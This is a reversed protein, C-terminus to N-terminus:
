KNVVICGAMLDHLGQKKETIGAMLFGIGFTLLSLIKGFHRGTATAFNVPDGNTTTVIIGLAMKGYTAQSSSSEMGAYYLWGVVLSIGYWWIAAFGPFLSGGLAAFFGICFGLAFCIFNIIIGDLICAFLRKWFGAYTRYLNVQPRAQFQSSYPQPSQPYIHPPCNPVSPQVYWLENLESVQLAKVWEKMGRRWVLSEPNLQKLNVMQKLVEFSIPGQQTGGLVFYWEVAHERNLEENM